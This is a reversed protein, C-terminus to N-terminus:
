NQESMKIIQRRVADSELRGVKCLIAKMQYQGCIPDYPPASSIIANINSKFCGHEPGPEEPFWWGQQVTIVRQDIANNLKARSTIIQDPCEPTKIWIWDGERIGLSEATASNLESIPDPCKRRLEEIQRGETHEFFRERHQVMILPYEKYIEPTSHPSIPPEKHFPLPDYGYDKLKESYLEVKGSPTNFGSQKYKQYSYEFTLSGRSVLESYTLGLDALKWDEFERVSSWRLKKGLRKALRFIIERDDLSEGRPSLLKPAAFLTNYNYDNRFSMFSIDTEMWHAPPLVLDALEATPTLFPDAVVLFDLSCLAQWIERSNAEQVVVNNGPSYMAKMEGRQMARYGEPTSAFPDIITQTRDGARLPYKEAGLRLKEIEAPPRTYEGLLFIDKFKMTEMEPLLNGGPRDLNGCLAMICAIARSTQTANIHQADVGLRAHVCSPKVTTVLRAAERIQEAEVWTIDEMDEPSYKEVAHKLENFGVCWKEVFEQDYLSEGIIVHLMAMALAGDAGPRVRMWLDANKASQTERPDIVIIKAGQKKAHLISTAHPPRTAFPNGGWILICRSNEYDVFRDGFNYTGCTLVNATSGPISCQHNASLINPIGWLDAFLFAAAAPQQKHYCGTASCISTPGHKEKIEGFRDVMIDLAKDWAIREWQGSGRPGRRKMPYLVRDKSEIKQKIYQGKECNAGRIKTIKGGQVSVELRCKMHCEQCYTTKTKLRSDDM